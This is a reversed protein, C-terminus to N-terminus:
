KQDKEYGRGYAMFGELDAPKTGEPTFDKGEAHPDNRVESREYMGWDYDMKYNHSNGKLNYKFPSISIKVFTRMCGQDIIPARHISYQDLRLLSDEGYQTLGLPSVQETMQKMSLEHDDSINQFKQVAFVTPHVDSWIYNIDNTGFGDSHWGPRNVPNDPSAYLHKATLYVYKDHLLLGEQNFVERILPKTWRLRAPLHKWDYAKGRMKIPLYLYAMMEPCELIFKGIVKPEKGYENKM